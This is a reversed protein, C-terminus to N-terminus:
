GLNVIKINKLSNIYDLGTSINSLYLDIEELSPMDAFADISINKLTNPLIIKKIKTKAFAYSGIDILNSGFGIDELNECGYFSSAGIYKGNFNINTLSGCYSFSNRELMNVNLLNIEKLNKCESFALREIKTITKPLIIKQIRENKYFARIGVITVDKDNYKENVEVTKAMGRVDTLTYTGSNNLEYIQRPLITFFAVLFISIIFLSTIIIIGLKKKM